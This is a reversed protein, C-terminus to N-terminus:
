RTKILSEAIKVEQLDNIDISRHKPMILFGNNKNEYFKKKIILNKHLIDM